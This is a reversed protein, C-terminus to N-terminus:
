IGAPHAERRHRSVFAANVAQLEAPDHIDRELAESIGRVIRATGSMPQIATWIIKLM